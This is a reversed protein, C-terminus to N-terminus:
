IGLAAKLRAEDFGKISVTSPEDGIVTVPVARFGRALLDRYAELDLEVDRALFPVGAQSLFEKV